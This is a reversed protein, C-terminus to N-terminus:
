INLGAPTAFGKIRYFTNPKNCFFEFYGGYRSAYVDKNPDRLLVTGDDDFWGFDERMVLQAHKTNGIYLEDDPCMQSSMIGFSGSGTIIEIGKFGAKGDWSKMEISNYRKLDESLNKLVSIGKASTIGFNADIGSRDRTAEVINNLDDYALSGGALDLYGGAFDTYATQSIGYLSGTTAPCIQSLGVCEKDKNGEWYFLDGAVPVVVAGSRVLVVSVTGSPQSSTVVRVTMQYVGGATYLDLAAGIPYYRAKFKPTSALTPTSDMNLVWPSASTGAGSAVSVAEGLVGTGNGFLAREMMHVNFGQVTSEVNELTIKGFAGKDNRSAKIAERDFEATAYARKATFIADEYPAAQPAPLNEGRSRYGLGVGFGFRVPAVFNKGVWEVNMNRMFMSALPADKNIAVESSKAYFEKFWASQDSINMDRSM